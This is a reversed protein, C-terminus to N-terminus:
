YVVIVYTHICIQVMHIISHYISSNNCYGPNWCEKLIPVSEPLSHNPILCPTLTYQLPCTSTIHPFCMMNEPNRTDTMLGV